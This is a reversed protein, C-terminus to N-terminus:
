ERPPAVGIPPRWNRLWHAYHEPLRQGINHGREDRRQFIPTHPNLLIYHHVWDLGLKKREDTEKKKSASARKFSAVADAGRKEMAARDGGFAGLAVHEAYATLVFRSGVQARAHLQSRLISHM